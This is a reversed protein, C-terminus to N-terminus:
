KKVQEGIFKGVYDNVQSILNPHFRYNHDSDLAYLVKPESAAEYAKRVVEPKVTTTGDAEQFKLKLNPSLKKKAQALMEPSLDIGVVEHGLKALEYAQAGTGTAM